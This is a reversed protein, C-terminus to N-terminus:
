QPNGWQEAMAAAIGPYTRARDMARTPSPGLKNQGSDTQNAWRPKFASADEGCNMCGWDHKGYEVVIGCRCVMRPEIFKTPRLAPLCRLWLCTRKSADEGFHYPQITQASKHGLRTRICGVPNELAFRDAHTSATDFLWAVEKLADETSASRDPRHKNWHLGSGAIYTCVPHVIMLDWHARTRPGESYLYWHRILQKVSTQYHFNSGDEAPELDCSWADHGRERFAQRVIGSREYGVLVKM